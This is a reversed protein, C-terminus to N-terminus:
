RARRKLDVEVLTPSFHAHRPGSQQGLHRLRHWCERAEPETWGAPACAVLQAAFEAASQPRAAPEKELCRLLLAEFPPPIAQEVRRSPALPQAHLHQACVEVANQGEFVPAATLLFYGVAGLAYLDSRADAGEPSVIAEPALFHPTGIIVNSATLKPDEAAAVQRKVLGFDVVKAVDPVGGRECLIINAPKIDRHVVGLGHAEGLAGCVQRLIHATREPKQPGDLEVLRQLDFGDLYEMAYYFIGDATRGFDYIAVTNPHTLQSTLQVEREFRGVAAEGSRERHLLKVATPRRLM